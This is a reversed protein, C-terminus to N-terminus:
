VCVCVDCVTCVCVVWAMHVGGGRRGGGGVMVCLASVGGMCTCGGGGGCIDCLVDCVYMVCHLCVGGMGHAGGWGEGWACVCVDCVTCVCVVWAM